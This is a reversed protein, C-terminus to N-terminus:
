RTWFVILCLAILIIGGILISVQIRRTSEREVSSSTKVPKVLTFLLLGVLMAQPVLSAWEQPLRDVGANLIFWFTATALAAAFTVFWARQRSYRTLRGTQGLWRWTTSAGLVGFIGTTVTVQIPDM